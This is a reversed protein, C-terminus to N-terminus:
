GSASFLEERFSMDLIRCLGPGLLGLVGLNVSWRPYFDVRSTTSNLLYGLRQM